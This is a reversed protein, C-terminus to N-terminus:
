RLLLSLVAAHTDYVWCTLYSTMATTLTLRTATAYILSGCVRWRSLGWPDPDEVRLSYARNITPETLGREPERNVSRTVERIIVPTGNDRLQPAQSQNDVRNEPVYTCPNAPLDLM